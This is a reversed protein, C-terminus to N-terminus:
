LSRSSHVFCTCTFKFDSFKITALNDAHSLVSFIKAPRYSMYKQCVFISSCKLICTNQALLVITSTADQSASLKM